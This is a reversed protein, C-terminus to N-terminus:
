EGEPDTEGASRHAVISRHASYDEDKKKKKRERSTAIKRPIGGSGQLM